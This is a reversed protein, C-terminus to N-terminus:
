GINPRPTTEGKPITPYLNGGSNVPPANPANHPDGAAAQTDYGVHGASFFTFLNNYETLM